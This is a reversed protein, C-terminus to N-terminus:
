GYTYVHNNAQKIVTPDGPLWSVNLAQALPLKSQGMARSLGSCWVVFVADFVTMDDNIDYCDSFDSM